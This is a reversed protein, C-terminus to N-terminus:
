RAASPVAGFRVLLAALPLVTAALGLWMVVGERFLVAAIFIAALVGLHTLAHLGEVFGSFRRSAWWLLLAPEPRYAYWFTIRM